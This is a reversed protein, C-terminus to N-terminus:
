LSDDVPIFSYSHYRCNIICLNRSVHRRSTLVPSAQVLPWVLALGSLIGWLIFLAPLIAVNWFPIGNVYSM